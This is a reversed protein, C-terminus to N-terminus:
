VAIIDSNFIINEIGIVYIITYSSFPSCYKYTLVGLNTVCRNLYGTTYEIIISIVVIVM